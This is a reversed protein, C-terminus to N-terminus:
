AAAGFRANIREAISSCKHAKAMFLGMANKNGLTAAKRAANYYRIRNVKVQDLLNSLQIARHTTM